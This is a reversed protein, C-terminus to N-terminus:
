MLCLSDAVLGRNDLMGIAQLFDTDLYVNKGFPYTTIEDEIDEEVVEMPQALLLGEDYTAAGKEAKEL